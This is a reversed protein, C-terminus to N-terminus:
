RRTEEPQHMWLHVAGYGRLPRWPEAIRNLDRPGLRTGNSAARILGLDSAPFADPHGLARLAVTEATWPGIGPIAVLKRKLTDPDVGPDFRIAGEAVNRALQNITRARVRPLGVRTLRARVLAAPRPFVRDLGPLETRVPEGYLAVLRGTLATAARVSVRQGIVARVALEFGCWGGPIRTGPHAEVSRRLRSDQRLAADIASPDASLDFMRRAQSVVESLAAPDDLDMTLELEDRGDVPRVVLTGSREGVRITRSYADGDVREVGSLARRRFFDLLGNWDLPPRYALRLRVAGSRRMAAGNRLASPPRAYTRSFADNFRRVSGFGSALAIETMSLETEDILRKAFHLRRTQAIARPSAGLHQVFLRRLHRAGMGVREALEEVSGRDLAGEQILGLARSLCAASGVYAPTGPAAEPRCRLCPRFGAEAAAAASAYFRVNRAKPPQVPCIPRCYIKTTVVGIFFRGDFRPDRALRARECIAPSLDM